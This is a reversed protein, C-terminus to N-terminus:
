THKVSIPKAQRPIPMLGDGGFRRWKRLMGAKLRALGFYRYQDVHEQIDELVGCHLYGSCNDILWDAAVRCHACIHHHNADGDLVGFAYRYSEGIAITRNCEDCRHEKRARKVNQVRYPYYMEGGDIACM